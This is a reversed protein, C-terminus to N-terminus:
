ERTQTFLHVGKKNSAIVDLPNDGDVDALDTALDAPEALGCYPDEPVVRAMAVARDVLGTLANASLDSSSVVAQRKGIFVRLGLDTSESREM